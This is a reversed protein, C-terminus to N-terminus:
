GPLCMHIWYNSIVFLDVPQFLHCFLYHCIDVLAEGYMIEPYYFAISVGVQDKVNTTGASSSTGAVLSIWLISSYLAPSNIDTIVILGDHKWAGDVFRDSYFDAASIFIPLQNRFISGFM